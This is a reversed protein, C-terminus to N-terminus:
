HRVSSLRVLMASLSSPETSLSPRLRPLLTVNVSGKTTVVGASTIQLNSSAAATGGVTVPGKSWVDGASTDVTFVNGLNVGGTFTGVFKGNITTTSTIPTVSLDGNLTTAGGSVSVAGTIDTRGTVVTAGSITTNGNM